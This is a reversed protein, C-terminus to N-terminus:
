LKVKTRREDEVWRTRAGLRGWPGKNGGCWEAWGEEGGVDQLVAGMVEEYTMRDEMAFAEEARSLVAEYFVENCGQSSRLSLSFSLSINSMTSATAESWDGTRCELRGDKVGAERGEDKM